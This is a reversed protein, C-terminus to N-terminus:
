PMSSWCAASWHIWSLMAANPPSGFRIVIVPWDAPAPLTQKWVTAGLLLPRNEAAMM